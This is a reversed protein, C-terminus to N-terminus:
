SKMAAVPIVYELQHKRWSGSIKSAVDPIVGLHKQIAETISSTDLLTGYVDFAALAIKEQRFESAM